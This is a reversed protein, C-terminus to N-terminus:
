IINVQVIAWNRLPKLQLITKRLYNWELETIDIFDATDTAVSDPFPSLFFVYGWDNPDVSIVFPLPRPYATNKELTGFQIDASFQYDGFSFFQGGIDGNPSSAVIEGDITRPDTYTIAGGFQVDGFQFDGFEFVQSDNRTNLIVYLPFGAKQIQDQLWDPGCSGDMQAREIIRQIREDDTSAFISTVGYKEEYDDLSDTDMLVNPVSSDRVQIRFDDVREFEISLAEYLAKGFVPLAMVLGHLNLRRITRAVSDRFAM